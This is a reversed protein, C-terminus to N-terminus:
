YGGKKGGKGGGHGAYSSGASSSPSHTTLGAKGGFKEMNHTIPCSPTGALGSDPKGPSPSKGELQSIGM